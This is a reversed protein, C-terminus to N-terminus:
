GKDTGSPKRGADRLLSRKVGTEKFISSDVIADRHYINETLRRMRM